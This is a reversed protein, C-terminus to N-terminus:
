KENTSHNIFIKDESLLHQISQAVELFTQLKDKGIYKEMTENFQKVVEKSINRHNIGQETLKIIVGRGDTPHPHREIMNREELKKLTRSLSTPEVGMKPGLATSSTGEKPDISLLAFAMTMSSDYKAAECNYAKVVANWTTRLMYDINLREKM